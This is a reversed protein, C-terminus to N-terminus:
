SLAAPSTALDLCAAQRSKRKLVVELRPKASAASFVRTYGCDLAMKAHRVTALM